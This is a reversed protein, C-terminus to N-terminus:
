FLGPPLHLFELSRIENPGALLARRNRNKKATGMVEVWEGAGGGGEVEQVDEGRGRCACGDVLTREGEGCESVGEERELVGAGGRVGPRRADGGAVGRVAREGGAVGESGDGGDGGGAEARVASEAAIQLGGRQLVVQLGVILDRKPVRYFGQDTTETQGGTITVPMLIAELRARRLLDVVPRGVGTGDM